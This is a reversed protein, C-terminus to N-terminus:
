QRWSGMVKICEINLQRARDVSDAENYCRFEPANGSPRLHIIEDNEFTIRIGDLQDVSIPRGAVGSFLSEINKLDKKIDDSNLNNLISHSLENPFDKIRDSTTFRKPLQELLGSIKTKEQQALMLICLPVIAADRTPLPSLCNGSLFIDNSQLFGGNAEYGVVTGSAQNMAEIVYPSGIRTRIVEKFFGSKEVASNSSVPTVVIDAKLYKACLIGAVDGRLWNGKEDSVLPRDGDGDTSIICDFSHEKSWQRALKVDEPRIAETDVSVFTDSRGLSTVDAGLKTLITKLCDRAVSSHEYLGIHRGDLCNSPFFDVFRDIYLQKADDNAAPLSLDGILSGGEDFLGDPIEVREERILQEDSKLIEGDAKNFKIGNRDDPIHSGTVMITPIATQLGYLAIAPSPIKGYNVPTLGLHTIAAYVTRMIRDTSNRLDGAIGVTAGPKLNFHKGLYQLFGTTYAWCVEDTMATVLGRVGSTGFQVGSKQMLDSIIIKM